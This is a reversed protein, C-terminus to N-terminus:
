VKASRPLNAKKCVSCDACDSVCFEGQGHLYTLIYVLYLLYSVPAIGRSGSEAQREKRTVVAGTRM